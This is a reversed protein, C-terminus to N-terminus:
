NIAIKKIHAVNRCVEGNNKCVWKLMRNTFAYLFIGYFYSARLIFLATSDRRKWISQPKFSSPASFPSRNWWNAFTSTSKMESSLRVWSIRAILLRTSPTFCFKCISGVGSLPSKVWLTTARARPMAGILWRLLM